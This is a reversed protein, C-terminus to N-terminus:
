HERCATVQGVHGRHDDIHVVAGITLEDDEGATADLDVLAVEGAFDSRKGDARVLWVGQLVLSGM